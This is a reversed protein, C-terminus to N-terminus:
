EANEEKNDHDFLMACPHTDTLRSDHPQAMLCSIPNDKVFSQNQLLFFDKPGYSPGGEMGMVVDELRLGERSPRYTGAVRVAGQEYIFGGDSPVTYRAPNEHKRLLDFALSVPTDGLSGKLRYVADQANGDINGEVVHLARPFIVDKEIALNKITFAEFVPRGILTSLFPVAFGASEVTAIKKTADNKDSIIIREMTLRMDPFIKPDPLATLYAHSKTADAIYREVGQRLPDGARELLKLSTVMLGGVIMLIFLIRLILTFSRSLSPREM